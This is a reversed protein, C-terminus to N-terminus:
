WSECADVSTEDGDVDTGAGITDTWEVFGLPAFDKDYLAIFIDLIHFDSAAANASTARTSVTSPLIVSTNDLNVAKSFSLRFKLDVTVAAGTDSLHESVLQIAPPGDSPDIDIATM